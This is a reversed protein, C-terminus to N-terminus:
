ANRNRVETVLEQKVPIDKGGPQFGSASMFGLDGVRILMTNLSDGDGARIPSGRLSM